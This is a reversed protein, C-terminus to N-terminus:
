YALSKAVLDKVLGSVADTLYGPLYSMNRDASGYVILEDDYHYNNMQGERTWCLNVWLTDKLPSSKLATVGIENFIEGPFGALAVKGIRLVQLDVPYDGGDKAPITTSGYEYNVQCKGTESEINKIAEKVDFYLMKGIWDLIPLGAQQATEKEGTELNQTFYQAGHSIPNQDGAAGMLRVAVSGENDAELANSVYGALDSSIGTKGDCDTNAYMIVSHVAYNVIFALPKGTEISTFRIVALTKDSFREFNVGESYYYNGDADTYLAQRNVNVYSDTYGIGMTAPKMNALAADAADMMQDYVLRGWKQLNDVKDGEKFTIYSMDITDTIEPTAHAHTATYFIADLPIGTHKSLESAFLPGYPGKGTEVSVILSVKAGDNVAIVRLHLPDIVGEATTRGVAAIPLMGNEKTPTIDRVAAGVQLYPDVTINMTISAGGEYKGEAGTLTATLTATGAKHATLTNPTKSESDNGVYSIVSEDSITYECDCAAYGDRGWTSTFQTHFFLPVSEGAKVTLNGRDSDYSANEDYEASQSWTLKAESQKIGVMVKSVIVNQGSYSYLRTNSNGETGGVRAIRDNYNMDEESSTINAWNNLPDADSKSNNVPMYPRDESQATEEYGAKENALRQYYDAASESVLYIYTFGETQDELPTGADDTDVEQSSLKGGGTDYSVYSYDGNLYNNAMLTSTYKDDLLRGGADGEAYCYPQGVKLDQTSKILTYHKSTSEEDQIIM